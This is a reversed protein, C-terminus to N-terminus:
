FEKSYCPHNPPYNSFDFLSAAGVTNGNDLDIIGEHIRKYVDDCGEMCVCLSDTDTFLLRVEPFLERLSNYFFDYMLLKSLDLVCMGAYIPKTM